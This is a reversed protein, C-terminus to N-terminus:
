HCQKQMNNKIFDEFEQWFKGQPLVLISNLYHEAEYYLVPNTYRYRHYENEFYHLRIDEDIAYRYCDIFGLITTVTKDDINEIEPKEQYFIVGDNRKSYNGSVHHLVFYDSKLICSLEDSSLNFKNVFETLINPYESKATTILNYMIDRMDREIFGRSCAAQLSSNLLKKFITNKASFVTGEDLTSNIDNLLSM